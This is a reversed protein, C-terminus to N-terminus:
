HSAEESSVPVGKDSTKASAKAEADSAIEEVTRTHLRAAGQTDLLKVQTGNAEHEALRKRAAEIAQPAYNPLWQAQAVLM